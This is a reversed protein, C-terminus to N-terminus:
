IEIKEGANRNTRNTTNWTKSRRNENRRNEDNWGNKGIRHKWNATIETETKEEGNTPPTETLKIEVAQEQSPVKSKPSQVLLPLRSIEKWAGM